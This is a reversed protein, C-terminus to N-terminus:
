KYIVAEINQTRWTIIGRKEIKKKTKKKLDCVVHRGRSFENIGWGHLAQAEGAGARASV